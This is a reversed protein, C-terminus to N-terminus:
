QRWVDPSCWELPIQVDRFMLLFRQFLGGLEKTLPSNTKYLSLTRWLLVGLTCRDWRVWGISWTVFLKFEIKGVLYRSGLHGKNQDSTWGEKQPPTVKVFYLDNRTGPIYIRWFNSPRGNVCQAMGGKSRLIEHRWFCEIDADNASSNRMAGPPRIAQRFVPFLFRNGPVRFLWIKITADNFLATCLFVLHLNFWGMQFIHEDFHPFDEGVEPTFIVFIQFWPRINSHNHWNSSSGFRYVYLIPQKVM